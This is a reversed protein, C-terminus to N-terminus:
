TGVGERDMSKQSITRITDILLWHPPVISTCSFPPAMGEGASPFPNVRLLKRLVEAAATATALRANAPNPQEVGVSSEPPSVPPAVGLPSLTTKFQQLPDHV